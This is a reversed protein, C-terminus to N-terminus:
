LSFLALAEVVVMSHHLYGRRGSTTRVLFWEGNTALAVVSDGQQLKSISGKTNAIEPIMTASESNVLLRTFPDHEDLRQLGVSVGSPRIVTIPEIASAATSSTQDVPEPVEYSVVATQAAASKVVDPIYKRTGAVAGTVLSDLMGSHQVESHQRVPSNLAVGEESFKLVPTNSFWNVCFLIAAGVIIADATTRLGSRFGAFSLYSTVSAYGAANNVFSDRVRGLLIAIVFACYLTLLYLPYALIILDFKGVSLVACVSAILSVVWTILTESDPDRWAKTVTAVGGLLSISITIALAYAATETFYWLVLGIGAAVLIFNDTKSLFVGSGARISLAFVIVTGTVQVGAFWLSVTAGEYIQSVLAISGLVSWILWSARQPQTRGAITDIIYPIYAFTSLVGSAIGFTLLALDSTIFGGSGSLELFQDM